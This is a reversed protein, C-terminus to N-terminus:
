TAYNQSRKYTDLIPNMIKFWLSPILALVIMGMYGLPMQPSESFSRLVQYRRSAFAHHDSHRQLKFLMDNTISAGANWSHTINVLEYENNNKERSLGYHEIYNALELAIVAIFSQGLFFIVYKYGLIASFAIILLSCLSLKICIHQKLQKKEIQWASKIGGIISRPLFKYFSENYYATAPDEPTSVNRHHGYLHEVFWHGYCVTVLIVKGLFKELKSNKHILEHAINIGMVGSNKGVTFVLGRLQSLTPNYVHIHYFAWMLFLVQGVSWCMPIIKFAFSNEIDKEEEKTININDNGTIIELLPIVSFTDIAALHYLKYNIYVISIVVIEYSILYSYTKIPNKILLNFISIWIILNKFTLIAYDQNSGLVSDIYIDKLYVAIILLLSALYKYELKIKPFNNVENKHTYYSIFCFFLLLCFYSLM